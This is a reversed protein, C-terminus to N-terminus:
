SYLLAERPREWGRGRGDIKTIVVNDLKQWRTLHQIYASQRKRVRTLM